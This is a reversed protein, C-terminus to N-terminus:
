CDNSTLFTGFYIGINQLWITYYLAKLYLFVVYLIYLKFIFYFAYQTTIYHVAHFFKKIKPIFM